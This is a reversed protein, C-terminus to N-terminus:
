GIHFESHEKERVDVRGPVPHPGAAGLRVQVESELRCALRELLTGVSRRALRRGAVGDGYRGTLGLPVTYTGNLRLRTGAPVEWTELEGEFAPLVQERGTARWALPLVLGGDVAWPVALQLRVEQRVGAGGGLDVGLETRFSRQRGEEATHADSFVAGPDDLFVERARAFAVPVTTSAEITREM